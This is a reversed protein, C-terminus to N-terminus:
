REWEHYFRINITKIKEKGCKQCKYLIDKYDGYDSFTVYDSVYNSKRSAIKKYNHNCFLQKIKLM